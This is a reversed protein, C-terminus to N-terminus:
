AANFYLDVANRARSVRSKLTGVECGLIQAATDYDEGEAIILLADRQVAPLMNLAQLVDELELRHHQNDLAVVREAQGEAMEVNRWAKRRESLFHNRMIYALWGRMNTGPTFSEWAKLAKEMTDQVLDEADRGGTHRSAIRGLVARHSMMEAAFVDRPTM